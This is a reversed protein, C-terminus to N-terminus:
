NSEQIQIYWYIYMRIDPPTFQIPQGYWVWWAGDDRGYDMVHKVSQHCQLYIASRHAAILRYLCPSNHTGVLVLTATSPPTHYTHTTHQTNHTSDVLVVTNKLIYIYIHTMWQGMYVIKPWQTVCFPQFQTFKVFLFFHISKTASWLSWVSNVRGLKYEWRLTLYKPFCARTSLCQQWHGYLLASVTGLTTLAARAAMSTTHQEWEREMPSSARQFM